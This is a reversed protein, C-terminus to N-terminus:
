FQSAQSRTNHFLSKIPSTGPNGSNSGFWTTADAASAVSARRALPVNVLYIKRSPNYRYEFNSGKTAFSFGRKLQRGDRTKVEVSYQENTPLASYSFENMEPSLNTRRRISKGKYLSARKILSADKGVTVFDIDVFLPNTEDYEGKQNPYRFYLIRKLVFGFQNGSKDNKDGTVQEIESIPQGGLSNSRWVSLYEAPVQEQEMGRSVALDLSNLFKIAETPSMSHSDSGTVRDIGGILNLLNFRSTSYERPLAFALQQSTSRVQVLKSVSEAADLNDAGIKGALRVERRIRTGRQAGPQEAGDASGESLSSESSSGASGIKGDRYSLWSQPLDAARNILPAKIGLLDPIFLLLLVLGIVLVTVLMNSQKFDELKLPM